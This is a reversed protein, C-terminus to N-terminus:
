RKMDENVLHCLYKALAQRDNGYLKRVRENIMDLSLDNPLGKEDLFDFDKNHFTIRIRQSGKEEEIYDPVVFKKFSGGYEKMLKAEERSKQLIDLIEKEPMKKNLVKLIAKATEYKPVATGQIYSQITRTAIPLGEREMGRKIERTLKTNEEREFQLIQSFTLDLTENNEKM